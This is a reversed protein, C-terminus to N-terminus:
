QSSSTFRRFYSYRQNVGFPPNVREEANKDQAAIDMRDKFPFGSVVM